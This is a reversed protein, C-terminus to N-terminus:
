KDSVISSKHFKWVGRKTSSVDCTILIRTGQNVEPLSIYFIWFLGCLMVEFIHLLADNWSCADSTSLVPFKLVSRFGASLQALKALFHTSMGKRLWEDM